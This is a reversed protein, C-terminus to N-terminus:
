HRARRTVRLRLRVRGEYSVRNSRHVVQPPRHRFRAQIGVQRRFLRIRRALQRVTRPESSGGGSLQGELLVILEDLLAEESFGSGSGRLTLRKVGPRMSRPVRVPVTLTRRAGRRRQVTLRVRIRQGRRARRPGRARVLVDQKLGSQARVSIAVRQLHMPALDFFDIM